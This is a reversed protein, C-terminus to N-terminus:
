NDAVIVFRRNEIEPDDKLKLVLMKLFHTYKTQNFITNTGIIGEIKTQSHAVIFSMKFDTPIMTKRGPQGKKVWGYSKLTNRNVLFEDLFIM